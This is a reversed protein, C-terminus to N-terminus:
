RQTILAFRPLTAVTLESLNAGGWAKLVLALNPVGNSYRGFLTDIIGGEAELVAIRQKQQAMLEALAEPTTDDALLRPVVPPEAQAEWTQAIQHRLLRNPWNWGHKPHATAKGQSLHCPPSGRQSVTYGQCTAGRKRSASGTREGMGALAGPM